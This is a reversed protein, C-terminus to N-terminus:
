WTILRAELRTGDVQLLGCSFNPARRRDTPSGPNFLLVMGENTPRGIAPLNRLQILPWHSHGFVVCDVDRFHSFACEATDRAKFGGVLNPRDGHVLGIVCDEIAITRTLPLFQVADWDDNNGVVSLVPAICELDAIVQRTNLDGAHLILDVGEFAEFVQPPLQRKGAQRIHTDSLVGLTTM